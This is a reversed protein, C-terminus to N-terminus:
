LIAKMVETHFARRVSYMGKKDRSPHVRNTLLIIIIDNILPNYKLLADLM